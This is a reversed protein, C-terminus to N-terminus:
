WTANVGFKVLRGGIIAIANGYSPGLQTVESTIGAVNFLNFVDVRPSFKLQGLRITRQLNIDVETINPLRTSGAPAITISQSVQTLKMTNSSVLVTQAIPWGRFYQMTGALTLEYPLEHAGSLKGTLPRDTSEPGRRFTINPNNLDATDAYIFDDSKGWSVSGIAM